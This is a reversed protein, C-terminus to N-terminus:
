EGRVARAKSLLVELETWAELLLEEAARRGRRVWGHGGGPLGLLGGCLLHIMLDYPTVRSPVKPSGEWGGISRRISGAEELRKDKIVHMVCSDSGVSGSTISIGGMVM